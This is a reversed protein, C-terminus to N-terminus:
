NVESSLQEWYYRGNYTETQDLYYRVEGYQPQLAFILANADPQPTNSLAIWFEGQTLTSMEVRLRITANTPISTAIGFLGQERFSSQGFLLGANSTTIGLGPVNAVKCDGSAGPAVLSAESSKIEWRDLCTIGPDVPTPPPAITETPNPPIETSTVTPLFEIMTPVPTNTAPIIATPTATETPPKLAAIIQPSTTILTVIITGIVGIIAALVTPNSFPKKTEESSANKKSM